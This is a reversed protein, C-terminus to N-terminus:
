ISFGTFTTYTENGPNEYIAGQQLELYVKDERKLSLVVSNTGHEYTTLTGYATVEFTTNKTLALTFDSDKAGIAHFIFFYLGDFPAVFESSAPDWGGGINTFIDKFHLRAVARFPERAKGVSFAVKRNTLVPFVEAEMEERSRVDHRTTTYHPTHHTSHHTSTHHTTHHTTQHTPFRGGGQAFIGIVMVILLTSVVRISHMKVM